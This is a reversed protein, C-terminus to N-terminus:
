RDSPSINQICWTVELFCLDKARNSSTLICGSPCDTRGVSGKYGFEACGVEDTFDGLSPPINELVASFDSLNDDSFLDEEFSNTSRVSATETASSITFTRRFREAYPRGDTPGGADLELNLLTSEGEPGPPDLLYQVFFEGRNDTPAPDCWEDGDLVSGASTADIRILSVAMTWPFRDVDVMPSGGTGAAGGSGSSGGAGGGTATADDGCGAAGLALGCALVIGWVWSRKM